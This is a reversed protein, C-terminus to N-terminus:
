ERGIVGAFMLSKKQECNHVRLRSVQFEISQFELPGLLLVMGVNVAAESAYEWWIHCLNV